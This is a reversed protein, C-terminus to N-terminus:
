EISIDHLILKFTFNITQEAIHTSSRNLAIVNKIIILLVRSYLNFTM